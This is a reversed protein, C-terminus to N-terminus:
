GATFFIGRFPVFIIFAIFGLTFVALTFFYLIPHNHRNFGSLVYTPEGDVISQFILGGRM